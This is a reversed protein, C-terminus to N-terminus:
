NELVRTAILVLSVTNKNKVSIRERFQSLGNQVIFRYDTSSTVFNPVSSTELRIFQMKQGVRQLKCYYCYYNYYYNVIFLKCYNFLIKSLKVIRKTKNITLEISSTFKSFPSNLLICSRWKVLEMFYGFCGFKVIETCM